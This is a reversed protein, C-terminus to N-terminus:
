KVEWRIYKPNIYKPINKDILQKIDQNCSNITSTEVVEIEVLNDYIAIAKVKSYVDYKLSHTRDNVADISLVDLYVGLDGVNVKKKKLRFIERLKDAFLDELAPNNEM